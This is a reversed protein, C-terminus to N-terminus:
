LLDGQDHYRCIDASATCIMQLKQKGISACCCHQSPSDKLEILYNGTNEPKCHWSIVSITVQGGSEAIILKNLTVDLGHADVAVEAHRSRQLKKECHFRDTVVQSSRGTPGSASIFGKTLTCTTMQHGSTGSLSAIQINLVFACALICTAPM